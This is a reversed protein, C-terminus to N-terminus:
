VYPKGEDVSSNCLNHTTGNVVDLSRMAWPNSRRTFAWWRTDRNEYLAAVPNYLLTAFGSEEGYQGDRRIAESSYCLGSACRQGFAVSICGVIREGVKGAAISLLCLRESASDRYGLTVLGFSPFIEALSAAIRWRCVGIHLAVRYPEARVRRRAVRNHVVSELSETCVWEILPRKLAHIACIRVATTHDLLVPRIGVAQWHSQVWM